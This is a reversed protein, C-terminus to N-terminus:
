VTTVVGSDGHSVVAIHTVWAIQRDYMAQPNQDTENNVENKSM